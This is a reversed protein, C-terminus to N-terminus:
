CNIKLIENSYEIDINDDFKALRNIKEIEENKIQNCIEVYARETNAKININIEKVDQGILYDVVDTVIYIISKSNCNLNKNEIVNITLKVSKAQCYIHLLKELTSKLVESTLIEKEIDLSGLLNNIDSIENKLNEIFKDHEEKNLNTDKLVELTGVEAFAKEKIEGFIINFFRGLFEEKYEHSLIQNDKRRIEKNLYSTKIASKTMLVMEDEGGAKDLYGQINMKDIMQLPPIKDSYGTQLIVITEQNFERLKNVFEDGNMQPMFYDLLLVDVENHKIYELGENPDSFCEVNMGELLELRNKTSQLVQKVDDVMVIKANEYINEM